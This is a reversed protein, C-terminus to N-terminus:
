RYGRHHRSAHDVRVVPVDVLRRDRDRHGLDSSDCLVTRLEQGSPWVIFWPHNDALNTSSRQAEDGGIFVTWGKHHIYRHHRRCLLVTNMLSTAGGQSWFKIHHGDTWGAPCGCGPFACGRDRAILAKRIAPTVTRHERGVDLPIGQDDVLIKTIVSDCAIMQATPASVPGTWEFTAAPTPTTSGTIGSM